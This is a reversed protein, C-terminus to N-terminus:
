STQLEQAFLPFGELQIQSLSFLDIAILTMHM